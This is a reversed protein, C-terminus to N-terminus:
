KGCLNLYFKRIENLARVFLARVENEDKWVNYACTKPLNELPTDPFNRCVDPRKDYIPCFYKGNRIEVAKCHYFYANNAPKVPLFDTLGTPPLNNEYLEFVEVFSKASKDGANARRLLEDPAYESIALRCCVGCNACKVCNFSQRIEKEASLIEDYLTKELYERAVGPDDFGALKKDIGKKSKIFIERYLGSRM